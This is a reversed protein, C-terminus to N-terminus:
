SLYSLKEQFLYDTICESGISCGGFILVYRMIPLDRLNQLMYKNLIFSGGSSLTIELIREKVTKVNFTENSQILNNSLDPLSSSLKSSIYSLSAVTTGLILTGKYNRSKYVIMDLGIAIGGSILAKCKSKDSLINNM